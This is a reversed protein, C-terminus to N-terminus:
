ICWCWHFKQPNVVNSCCRFKCAALTYYPRCGLGLTCTGLAAFWLTKNFSIIKRIAWFASPEWYPCCQFKLWTDSWNIPSTQTHDNSIAFVRIVLHLMDSQDKEYYGAHHVLSIAVSFMTPWWSGNEVLLHWGDKVMCELRKILLTASQSCEAGSVLQNIQQSNSYGGNIWCRQSSVQKWYTSWRSCHHYWCGTHFMVLPHPRSWGNNAM